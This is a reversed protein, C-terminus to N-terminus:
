LWRFCISEGRFLPEYKDREEWYEKGSFEVTRIESDLEKYEPENFLDDLNAKLGLVLSAFAKAQKEIYNIQQWNM